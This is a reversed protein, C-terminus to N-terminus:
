SSPRVILGQASAAVVIGQNTAIAAELRIGFPLRGLPITVAPGNNAQVQLSQGALEVKGVGSASVTHGAITVSGTVRVNGDGAYAITVHNFGALYTDIDAYGITVTARARDIPVRSVHGKLVDSLPVHVGSLHVVISTVTVGGRSIDHVKLTVDDYKGGIAQTLFPFGGITVDPRTSLGQDVEIRDAVQRQAVNVAVRDAVVLLGLIVALAIVLRIPRLM